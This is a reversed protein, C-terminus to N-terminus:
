NPKITQKIIHKDWDPKTTVSNALGINKKAKLEEFYMHRLCYGVVAHSGSSEDGHTLQM